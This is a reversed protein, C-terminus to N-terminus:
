WNGEEEKAFLSETLERQRKDMKEPKAKKQLMQRYKADYDARKKQDLLIDKANKILKFM